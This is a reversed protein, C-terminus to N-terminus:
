RNDTNELLFYAGFLILIKDMMKTETGKIGGFLPQSM